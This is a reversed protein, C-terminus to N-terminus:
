PPIIGPFQTIFYVALTSTANILFHIIIGPWLSNSRHYVYTLIIGLIFTPILSALDLHAAAFIFSSLLLAPLWGYRKRFGQFLFGRFFIEEVVPAVVVAALFLWVPSEISNFIDFIEKGQPDVGLLTLILNHVIIIGYGVVLMGCGIGMTGLDFKGFGLYKWSARKWALILVVPLIYALEAFVISVSQALQASSGGKVMFLLAVNLLILLLVGIWSEMAGWPVPRTQAEERVPVQNQEM